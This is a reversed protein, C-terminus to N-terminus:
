CRCQELDQFARALVEGRVDGLLSGSVQDVLKTRQADNFVNRVLPGPQSFIPTNNGVLDYNGEETYFKLSFSRVERWTDPSGAEGAVASFRALMDTVASRRFLAAKTFASVGETTAFVGVAGAGKAHPQREPVKGRNFHAMQELFHVDYLLIPGDPGITLSNRDSSAPAGTSMTSGDARKNRPEAM